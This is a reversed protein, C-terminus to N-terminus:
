RGLLLALIAGIDATTPMAKCLKQWLNNNRSCVLFDYGAKNFGYLKKTRPAHYAKKSLAYVTNGTRKPYGVNDDNRIKVNLFGYAEAYDFAASLEALSFADLATDCLVDKVKVVHITGNERRANELHTETCLMLAKLCDFDIM